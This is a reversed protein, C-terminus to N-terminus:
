TRSVVQALSSEENDNQLRLYCAEFAGFYFLFQYSFTRIPTAARERTKGGPLFLFSLITLYFIAHSAFAMWGPPAHRRGRSAQFGVVFLMATAGIALASTFAPPLWVKGLLRALLEVTSLASGAIGIGVGAIMLLREWAPMPKAKHSARPPFSQVIPMLDSEWLQSRRVKRPDYHVAIQKERLAEAWLEAQDMDDFKKEFEGIYPEGDIQYKYHLKVVFNNNRKSAGTSLIQGYTVPWTQTTASRWAKWWRQIAALVLASLFIAVEPWQEFNFPSAM